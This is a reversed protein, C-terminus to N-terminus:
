NGKHTGCCINLKRLTEPIYTNLITVIRDATTDSANHLNFTVKTLDDEITIHTASGSMIHSNTRYIASDKIERTLKSISDMSSTRFSGILLTDKRITTQGPPIWVEESTYVFNTGNVKFVPEMEFMNSGFGVKMFHLQFNRTPAPKIKVQGNCSLLLLTWFLLNAMKLNQRLFLVSKIKERM